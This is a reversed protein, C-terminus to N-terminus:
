GSESRDSSVIRSTEERERLGSPPVSVGREAAPREQYGWHHRAYVVGDGQYRYGDYHEPFFVHAPLVTLRRYPLSRWCQTLLRPGVMRWARAKVMRGKSWSWRRDVRKLAGIRAIVHDLFDNGPAAGLFSNSILRRRPAIHDAEWCAFMEHDLLAEDLPALCESDADVYVGGHRHLIEYRMLDAVGCIETRWFIEMHAKNRWPTAEYDANGWVRVEFSPNQRRWTEIWLDPRRSEDGIWIIHILRPIAM